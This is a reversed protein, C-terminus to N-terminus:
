KIGGSTPLPAEVPSDPDMRLPIDVLAFKESAPDAAPLRLKYSTLPADFLIRGQQTEAPSITRLLGFWNDVGEGNESEKYTQGNPGELTLLPVSVDEGGGNTVSLTILLFRRDPVRIKFMQGLQSKWTSEVVTYTLPKLPIRDGMGFEIRNSNETSCGALVLVLPLALAVSLRLNM